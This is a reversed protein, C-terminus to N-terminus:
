SRGQTVLLTDPFTGSQNKVLGLWGRRPRQNHSTVIEIIDWESDLIKLPVLKNNVKAGVCHDGVETHISYAFDIPSSNVPFEKVEGAPTLAYV